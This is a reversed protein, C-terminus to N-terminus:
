MAAAAKCAHENKPGSAPQCLEACAEKGEKDCIVKTVKEFASCADADKTVDCSIGCAQYVGGALEKAKEDKAAHAKEFAAFDDLCMQTNADKGCAIPSFSLVLLLGRAVRRPTLM